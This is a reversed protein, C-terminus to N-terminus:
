ALRSTSERRTYPGPRRTNGLWVCNLVPPFQTFCSFCSLAPSATSRVELASIHLVGITLIIGVIPQGRGLTMGNVASGVVTLLAMFLQAFRFYAYSELTDPIYATWPKSASIPQPVVDVEVGATICPSVETSPHLLAASLLPFVETCRQHM